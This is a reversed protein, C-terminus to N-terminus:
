YYSFKAEDELFHEKYYGLLSHIVLVCLGLGYFAAFIGVRQAIKYSFRISFRAKFCARISADSTAYATGLAVIMTSLGGLCASLSYWFNDSQSHDDYYNYCIYAVILTHILAPILAYVTSMILNYKIKEGISRL